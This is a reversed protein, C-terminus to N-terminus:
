PLWKIRKREKEWMKQMITVGQEQKNAKKFPSNHGNPKKM